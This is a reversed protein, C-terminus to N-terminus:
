APQPSNNARHSPPGALQRHGALDWPIRSPVAGLQQGPLLSELRPVYGKYPTESAKLRLVEEQFFAPLKGQLLAEAMRDLRGAKWRMLANEAAAAAAAGGLRAEIVACSLAEFEDDGFLVAQLANTGFM